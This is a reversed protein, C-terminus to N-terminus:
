NRFNQTIMLGHFGGDLVGIGVRGYAPNLINARHGPSNMLGNHAITLTQALALNEGATLFQVNDRTMRDFPTKGEPTLHAFYGRAFMDRSHKRAVAAMEPDAKLPNLGQNVREVNIMELMKAELDERVKPNDVTFPLNVSKDSGPRITLKNITQNVAKDFVPSIKEELWEAQMSLKGAIRSDRTQASLTNSIPLALLLASIIAAWILGNIIGPIIGFFKNASNNHTDATTTRLLRGIIFSILMSALLVVLIFSVPNLWVELSPVIKQLVAAVYPYFHFGALLSGAWTILGTAGLIFGKRWGRWIALLIIIILLIDILNM